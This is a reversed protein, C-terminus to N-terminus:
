VLPMVPVVIEKQADNDANIVQHRVDEEQNTLELSTTLAVLDNERVLEQQVDNVTIDTNTTNDQKTM